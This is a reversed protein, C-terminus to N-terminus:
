YYPHLHRAILLYNLILPMQKFLGPKLPYISLSILLSQSSSLHPFSMHRLLLIASVLLGLLLLPLLFMPAPFQFSFSHITLIQFFATM